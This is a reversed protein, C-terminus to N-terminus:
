PTIIDIKIAAASESFIVLPPSFVAHVM